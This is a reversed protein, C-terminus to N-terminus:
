LDSEISRKHRQVLEADVHGKWLLLQLCGVTPVRFCLQILSPTFVGFLPSFVGCVGFFSVGKILDFFEEKEGVGKSLHWCCKVDNITKGILAGFIILTSKETHFYTVYIIQLLRLPSEFANSLGNHLSGIEFKEYNWNM